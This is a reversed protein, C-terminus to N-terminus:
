HLAGPRRRHSGGVRTLLSLERSLVVRNLLQLTALGAEHSRSQGDNRTYRDSRDRSPTANKAPLVPDRLVCSTQAQLLNASAALPTKTPCRTTTSHGRRSIKEFISPKLNPVNKNHLTM